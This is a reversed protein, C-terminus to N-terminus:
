SSNNWEGFRTWSLRVKTVDLASILERYILFLDQLTHISVALSDQSANTFNWDVAKVQYRSDFIEIHSM